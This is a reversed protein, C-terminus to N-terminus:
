SEGKLGKVCERLLYWSQSNAAADEVAGAEGSCALQQLESPRAGIGGSTIARVCLCVCKRLACRFDPRLEWCDDPLHGPPAKVCVFLKLAGTTAAGPLRGAAPIVQRLLRALTKYAPPQCVSEQLPQLARAEPPDPCSSITLEVAERPRAPSPGLLMLLTLDHGPACHVDEVTGLVERLQQMQKTLRRVSASRQAKRQAPSVEGDVQV